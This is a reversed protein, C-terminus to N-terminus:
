GIAQGNERIIQIFHLPRTTLEHGDEVNLQRVASGRPRRALLALRFRENVINRFSQEAITDETSSHTRSPEASWTANIMEDHCCFGRALM